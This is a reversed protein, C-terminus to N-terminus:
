GFASWVVGLLTALHHLAQGLTSAQTVVYGAYKLQSAVKSLTRQTRRSERKPNRAAATLTKIEGDLRVRIAPSQKLAKVISKLDEISREAENAASPSTFRNQRGRMTESLLYTPESVERKFVLIAGPRRM